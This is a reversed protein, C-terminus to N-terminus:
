KANIGNLSNKIQKEFSSKMGATLGRELATETDINKSLYYRTLLAGVRNGSGCHLLVPGNQAEYIKTFKQVDEDSIGAGTIPINIHTINEKQAATAEQEVGEQPTRLDIITTIGHAALEKLAGEGLTGSTALTTTARNYNKITSTIESAFPVTGEAFVPFAITLMFLLSLVFRIPQIHKM